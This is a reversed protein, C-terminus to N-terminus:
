GPPHDKIFQNMFAASKDWGNKMESETFSEFMGGINQKKLGYDFSNWTGTNLNPLTAILTTSGVGSYPTRAGYTWNHVIDNEYLQFKYQGYRGGKLDLYEDGRGLNEGYLNFYDESGDFREKFVYPNDFVFSRSQYINLVPPANNSAILLARGSTANVLRHYANLPAM